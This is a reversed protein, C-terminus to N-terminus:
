PQGTQQQTIIALLAAVKKQAEIIIEAQDLRKKLRDNERQLRDNAKEAASRQLPRGRKTTKSGTLQGTTALERWTALHSSYLGERRLIAGIQGHETVQEVEHLIRRKYEASFTRRKAKPLGKRKREPFVEVTPQRIPRNVALNNKPLQFSM